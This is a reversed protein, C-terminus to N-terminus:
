SKVWISQTIDVLKINKLGKMKVIMMQTLMYIKAHQLIIYFVNVMNRKVMLNDLFNKIKILIMKGAKQRTTTLSKNLM